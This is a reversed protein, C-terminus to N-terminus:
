GTRRVDVASTGRMARITTTVPRSTTAAADAAVGDVTITVMERPEAM